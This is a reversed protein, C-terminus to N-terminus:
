LTPKRRIKGQRNQINGKNNRIVGYENIEYLGEYGPIEKWM